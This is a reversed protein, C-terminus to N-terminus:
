ISKNEAWICWGKRDKSFGGIFTTLTDTPRLPVQTTVGVQIPPHKLRRLFSTNRGSFLGQLSCPISSDQAWLPTQEGFINLASSPLKQTPHTPFLESTECWNTPSLKGKEWAKESGYWKVQFIEHQTQCWIVNIIINQFICHFNGPTRRRLNQALGFM